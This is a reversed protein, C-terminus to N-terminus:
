ADAETQRNPWNFLEPKDEPRLTRGDQNLIMVGCHTLYWADPSGDKLRDGCIRLVELSFSGEAPVLDYLFPMMIFHFEAPDSLGQFLRFWDPSAAQLHLGMQMNAEQGGGTCALLVPVVQPCRSPDRTLVVRPAGSMVIMSCGEPPAVGQFKRMMRTICVELQSM